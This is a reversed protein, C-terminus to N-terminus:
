KQLQPSWGPYCERSAFRTSVERRWGGEGDGASLIVEPPSLGTMLRGSCTIQLPRFAILMVMSNKTLLDPKLCRHGSRHADWNRVQLYCFWLVEKNQPLSSQSGSKNGLDSLSVVGNQCQLTFPSRSPMRSSIIAQTARQSIFVPIGSPRRKAKWVNCVCWVRQLFELLKFHLTNVSRLSAQFPKM